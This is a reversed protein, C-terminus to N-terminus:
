NLCAGQEDLALALDLAHPSRVTSGVQSPRAIFATMKQGIRDSWLKFPARWLSAAGTASEREHALTDARWFLCSFPPSRDVLEPAVNWWNLAFARM